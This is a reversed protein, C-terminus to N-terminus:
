CQVRVGLAIEGFLREDDAGLLPGPYAIAPIWEKGCSPVAASAILEPLRATFWVGPTNATHPGVRCSCLWSRFVEELLGGAITATRDTRGPDMRVVPVNALYPMGRPDFERVCNGVIVPAPGRKAEM